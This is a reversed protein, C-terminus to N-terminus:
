RVAQEKKWIGSLGRSRKKQIQYYTPEPIPINENVLVRKPNEDLLMKIKKKGVLAKAEDLAPSFNRYTKVRHADSALFHIMNHTLLIEATDRAAEGYFGILSLLNLQALNGDQILRILVNPDEQIFDYREPHAIIPIYGKGRLKNLFVELSYFDLSYRMTEVLLYRSGNITEFYGKGVLGIIESTYYVENGLFLFTDIGQARIAKKLMLFRKKNEAVTSTMRNETHFHPTLVIGRFGEDRACRIMNVSEEFTKSGDDVGPLIHTHIDIM